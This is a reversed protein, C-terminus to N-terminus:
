FGPQDSYDKNEDGSESEPNIGGGLESAGPEIFIQIASINGHKGLDAEAIIGINDLGVVFLLAGQSVRDQRGSPEKINESCCKPFLYKVISM